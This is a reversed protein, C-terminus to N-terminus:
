AGALVAGRGSWRSRGLGVTRTQQLAGTGPLYVLVGNLSVGFNAVGAPKSLVGEQVPVPDGITELRNLDFGSPGSTGRCRM